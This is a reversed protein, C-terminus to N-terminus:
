VIWRITKTVSSEYPCFYPCLIDLPCRSQASRFPAYVLFVQLVSIAGVPSMEAIIVYFLDPLFFQDFHKRLKESFEILLSLVSLIHFEYICFVYTGCCRQYLWMQRIYGVSQSYHLPLHILSKEWNPIHRLYRLM